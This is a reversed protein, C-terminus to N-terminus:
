GLFLTLKKGGLFLSHVWCIGVIYPTNIPNIIFLGGIHTNGVIPPIGLDDMQEYPKSGHNEGDMKPTLNEGNKKQFGLNIDKKTGDTAAQKNGFIYQPCIQLRALPSESIKGLSEQTEFFFHPWFQSQTTLTQESYTEVFGHYGSPFKILVYLERKRTLVITHVKPQNRLPSKM